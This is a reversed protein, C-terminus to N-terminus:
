STWAKYEDVLTYIVAAVMCAVLIDRVIEMVETTREAADTVANATRRVDQTAARVVRSTAELESAAAHFIQVAQQAAHMTHVWEVRMDRLSAKPPAAVAYANVAEPVPANKRKLPIRM